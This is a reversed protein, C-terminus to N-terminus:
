LSPNPNRLRITVSKDEASALYIVVRDHRGVSRGKIVAIDDLSRGRRVLEKLVRNSVVYYTTVTEGLQRPSYFSDPVKYGEPPIAVISGSFDEYIKFETSTLNM